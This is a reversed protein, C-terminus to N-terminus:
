GKNREREIKEAQVCHLSISQKLQRYRYNFSTLMKLSLFRYRTRRLKCM